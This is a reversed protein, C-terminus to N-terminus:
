LSERDLPLKIIFEAGEGPSSILEIKGKHEMVIQNALPIGLGTGREKTTYFPSFIKEQLEKSIGPGTDKISIALYGNSVFSRIIIKGGNPMVEWSNKILNLLAQKIQSSDVYVTPLGGGGEVQLEINRKKLEPTVLTVLSSLLESIDTEEKRPSPLRAYELYQQTIDVLRLIENKIERVTKLLEQKTVEDLELAKIDDELLESNLNLASLPNRIEHTVQSAMRGIVALREARLLREEREILARGMKNIEQALFGIEDKSKIEVKPLLEGRGIEQVVQALRKIPKISSFIRLGIIISVLFSFLTLGIVTWLFKIQGSYVLSAHYNMRQETELLIEKLVRNINSEVRIINQLRNQVERVIEAQTDGGFFKKEVLKGKLEIFGKYDVDLLEYYNSISKLKSEIKHLFFEEEKFLAIQKIKSVSRIGRKVLLLRRQRSYKLWPISAPLTIDQSINSLVVVVIGQNTRLEEIDSTVKLYGQTLLKLTALFNQNQWIVYILVVIYSLIILLIGIFIKGLLSVSVKM